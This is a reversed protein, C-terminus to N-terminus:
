RRIDHLCPVPDVVPPGAQGVPFADIDVRRRNVGFVFGFVEVRGLALYARFEKGGEPGFGFEGLEFVVFDLFFFGSRGAPM